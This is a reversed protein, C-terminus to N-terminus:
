GIWPLTCLQAGGKINIALITAGASDKDLRVKDLMPDGEAPHALRAALNTLYAISAEVKAKDKWKTFFDVWNVEDPLHGLRMAKSQCRQTIIAWRRLAHRLRQAAPAGAAVRLNSECDSALMVPGEPAAGMAAKANIAQEVKDSLQLTAVGETLALCKLVLGVKKLDACICGGNNTIALAYVDDEGYEGASWTADAAGDLERPAGDALRQVGDIRAIAAGRPSDMTGALFGSLCMDRGHAAGYSLGEFRHTYAVAIVGRITMAAGASARQAVCSAKHVARILRIMTRTMWRLDGTMAQVERQEKNLPGSGGLLEMGDLAKRLGKGSPIGDRLKGSDVFEPVWKRASREIFEPMLLTTVVKDHSRMIRLGGFAEANKFTLPKGGREVARASLVEHTRRAVDVDTVRMLMDDIIVIARDEGRYKVGPTSPCSMWGAVECDQDRVIEFGFGAVGAGWLPSRLLVALRRGQDDCADITDPIKAAVPTWVSSEGIGYGDTWDVVALHHEPGIESCFVKTELDGVPITYTCSGRLRDQTKESGMRRLRAEDLSHRSKRKDLTGTVENIKYRRATVMEILEYGMAILEAEPMMENGPLRM